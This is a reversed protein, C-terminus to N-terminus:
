TPDVKWPFSQTVAAAGPRAARVEVDVHDPRLGSPLQVVYELAQYYRFSFNVMAAPASPGAGRASQLPGQQAQGSVAVVSAPVVSAGAPGQARVRVQVTGAIVADPRGSQMLTLHLRFQQPGDGTIRLQQVQVSGSQSAPSVVGRYVALDQRDRDIQAQLEAIQRAVEERERARGKREDDLVALRTRLDHNDQQLGALQARRDREGVRDYGVSYRGFEFVVYLAFLGIGAMAARLLATRRFSAQSRVIFPGKSNL